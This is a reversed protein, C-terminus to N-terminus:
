GLGDPSANCFHLVFGKQPHMASTCCMVRPPHALHVKRGASRTDHGARCFWAIEKIKQTLLEESAHGQGLPAGGECGFREVVEDVQRRQLAILNRKTKGPSAEVQGEIGQTWRLSRARKVTLCYLRSQLVMCNGNSKTDSDKLLLGRPVLHVRRGQTSHFPISHLPTSHGPTSHLLICDFLTSLEEYWPRSQLVM